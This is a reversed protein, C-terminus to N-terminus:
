RTSGRRSRPRAKPSNPKSTKCSKNGSPRTWLTASPQMSNSSGNPRLPPSPTSSASTKSCAPPSPLSPEWRWRWLCWSCWWSSVRICSAASTTIPSPTVSARLQHGISAAVSASRTSVEASNLVVNTIDELQRAVEDADLPKGSLEALAESAAQVEAAVDDLHSAHGHESAADAADPDQLTPETDQGKTEDSM